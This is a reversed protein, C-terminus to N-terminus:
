LKNVVGTFLDIDYQVDKIVFLFPRDAYFNKIVEPMPPASTLMMNMETVAAAETGMEDVKIKARHNVDDIKLRLDNVMKGFEAGNTFAQEVGMIKLNDVIKNEIDLEFKPLRLYVKGYFIPANKLNELFEQRYKETEAAWENAVNLDSSNFPMVIYMATITQGNLKKYPLEIGKFKDDEYYKISNKFAQSMMKVETKSSDSNKFKDTSTYAGNFPSEWDGKFYVVNLIDMVTDKSVISQYDQIFNNTKNAVWGTIFKKEGDLNGSFDAPKITSRYVNEVIDQYDRNIGNKAYDKSILILNSDSLKRGYGSYKELIDNQFLSYFNNPGEVSNASIAQLIEAQTQGEAGNAVISLATSIGYPSYFINEDKNLTAYYKWNFDGIEDIPIADAASCTPTSIFLSMLAGTIFKKLM